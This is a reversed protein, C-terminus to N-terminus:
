RAAAPSTTGSKTKEAEAKAAKADAEERQRQRREIETSLDGVVESASKTAYSAIKAKTEAAQVSAQGHTWIDAYKILQRDQDSSLGVLKKQTDSILKDYSDIAQQLLAVRDALMTVRKDSSETDSEKMISQYSQQANELQKQLSDREKKYQEKAEVLQRRYDAYYNNESILTDIVAGTRQVRSATRQINRLAGQYRDLYADVYDSFGEAGEGVNSFDYLTHAFLVDNGLSELRSWDYEQFYSSLDGGVNSMAIIENAFAGDIVDLAAAGRVASNLANFGEAWQGNSIARSLRKIRQYETRWQSIQRNWQQITQVFQSAGQAIHVPDIVPWAAFAPQAMAAALAAVTVTRRITRLVADERARTARRM